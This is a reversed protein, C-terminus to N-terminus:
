NAGIQPIWATGKVPGSEPDIHHLFRGLFTFLHDAHTGLQQSLSNM